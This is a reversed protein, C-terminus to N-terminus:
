RSHPEFVRYWHKLPRFCKADEVVSGGYSADFHLYIRETYKLIVFTKCRHLCYRSDRMCTYM